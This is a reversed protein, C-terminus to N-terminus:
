RLMGNLRAFEPDDPRLLVLKAVHRRASAIDGSQLAADLALALLDADNPNRDLAEDIVASGERGRGLSRLAVAYVYAYRANDPDLRWARELEAVADPYDRQRILALALAHHPAAEEPRAAIAGRLLEVAEGDRGQLRYLDALNVTLMVDGPQLKLGARLEAEAGAADGRRLLFNGLGARAEARDANLRQAAEFERFAAELRARDPASLPALPQDALQGAAEIRVGAVPDALLPSVRRWRVDLPQGAQGQIAAIRVLPDPDALATAVAEDSETSPFGRLESVATARVVAPVAPAEALAILQERAAPDGSRADHFAKAWTQFGKRTPGHWREIAAAAWDASQNEHCDNCANPTGLRATLDPRPIRFSHDHREDVVMYTRAPMHCAICDPAEPGPTHGTHATSAFREPLHCQSCVASGPARLKASHPEHCDSCTVGRAYMLSQKFSHDNFVEDKMIGDAEFLGESLTTPLHTETLPRGPQWNESFIGRRAHCRACAEVEDGVPRSVGAAPSGTAPDISWDPTPRKAIASAFGKLAAEPDRGGEAWAVHGLGPGHCAECGVSIESFRTQFSNTAADYNKRLGTSHCEACMYNWNQQAGTWHLPDSHPIAQHPYLHFWRQGGEAEPRTDYAFPLAQKRGDPFTVLYQQLPEVGFTDTVEFEATAGDAGDTEVMYRDGDRFFRASSGHHEVRADDFDGLVTAPVARSMAHAHQSAAWDRSETAHCAACAASGAFGPPAHDALVGIGGPGVPSFESEALSGGAVFQGALAIIGAMLSGAVLAAAYRWGARDSKM